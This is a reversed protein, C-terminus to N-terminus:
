RPASVGIQGKFSALVPAPTWNGLLMGEKAGTVGPRTVAEGAVFRAGLAAFVMAERADPPVGLEDTTTVPMKCEAALAEMLPGHHVGGGAVLITQPKESLHGLGRAVHRAVAVAASALVDSPNCREPLAGALGALWQAGFSDRGTSCPPASGIFPHNLFLAVLVEDPTGEQACKGGLDFPQNLLRLALGDLLAGAPGTDFALVEGGHGLWTLNAIGGLNLVCLPRVARGFVLEDGYASLPAGEGGAALDAARFDAVVSCGTVAAIRAPDGLQLSAPGSPEVGDHHWLTQGHSAILDVSLNAQERVCTLAAGFALGLDRHLLATERLGCPGGALVGNLRQGLDREFGLTEFALLQPRQWDGNAERIFRVLGVDVGDASTGSLIGACVLGEESFLRQHLTALDM